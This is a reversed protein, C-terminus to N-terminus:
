ARVKEIAKFVPALQKLESYKNEFARLERLASSLLEETMDKNELVVFLPRYTDQVSVFARVPESTDNEDNIVTINRILKGAQIERYSEAAKADDWEFCDHLPANKPRSAEVIHAPDLEQNEKYIRELEKGAVNADVNYLPIKWEYIM